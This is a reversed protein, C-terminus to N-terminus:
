VTYYMEKSFEPKEIRKRRGDVVSLTNNMSLEDIELRQQFHLWILDCVQQTQVHM